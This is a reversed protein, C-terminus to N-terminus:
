NGDDQFLNLLDTRNYYYSGMIKRYRIKGSIRINQLTAPSINMTHRVVKSRLWEQDEEDSKTIKKKNIINEIDNLLLIRFQQLDEKTISEMGEFYISRYLYRWIMTIILTQFRSDKNPLCHSVKLEVCPIRAALLVRQILKQAVWATM